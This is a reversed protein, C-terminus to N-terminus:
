TDDDPQREPEAEILKIDKTAVKNVARNMPRVEFKEPGLPAIYDLTSEPDLWKDPDDLVVPMRDHYPAVLENPEDTLIAFSPVTDGKV